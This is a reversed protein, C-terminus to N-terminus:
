QRSLVYDNGGSARYGKCCSCLDQGGDVDAILVVMNKLEKLEQALMYVFYDM